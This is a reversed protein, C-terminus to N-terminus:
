ARFGGGWVSFELGSLLVLAGAVLVDNEPALDLADM